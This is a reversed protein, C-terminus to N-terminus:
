IKRYAATSEGISTLLLLADPSKAKALESM